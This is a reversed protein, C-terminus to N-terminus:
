KASFVGTDRRKQQPLAPMAQTVPAEPTSPLKELWPDLEAGTLLSYGTFFATCLDTFIGAVAETAWGDYLTKELVLTDGHAYTRVLGGVRLKFSPTNESAALVTYTGPMPKKGREATFTEGRPLMFDGKQFTINAAGDKEIADDESYRM